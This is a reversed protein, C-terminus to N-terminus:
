FVFINFPYPYFIYLVLAMYFFDSVIINIDPLIFKLVFVAIIADNLFASLRFENADFIM